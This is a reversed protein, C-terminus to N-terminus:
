EELLTIVFAGGKVREAFQIRPAKFASDDTRYADAIGDQYAKCAASVNDEDPLPGTAKGYVTVLLRVPKAPRTADGLAAAYAWQRHKKTERGKAARHARGNPWLAKHPYPLKM